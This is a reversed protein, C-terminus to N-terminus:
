LKEELPWMAKLSMAANVMWLGKPGLFIFDTGREMTEGYLNVQTGCIKRISQDNDNVAWYIRINEELPLVIYKM